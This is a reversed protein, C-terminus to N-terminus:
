ITCLSCGEFRNKGTWVTQGLIGELRQVIRLHKQGTDDFLFAQRKSKDGGALCPFCGVRTFGLRYLPNERGQLFEFVDATSWDLIPLRFTVGAAGLKLPYSSMYENPQYVEDGVFDKYKRARFASEAKRIGIWVEFGTGQKIALDLYFKKSPRIKLRDTCFRSLAHPFRRHKICQEEVTGASVTVIHIGYLDQMYAIHEYVLPHEFGTDHFLGLVEDKTYRQLALQLSAQSDKGGSCPVVCKVM